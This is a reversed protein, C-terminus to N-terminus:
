VLHQVFLIHFLPASLFMMAYTVRSGAFRDKCPVHIPLFVANLGPM